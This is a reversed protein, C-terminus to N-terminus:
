KNIEAGCKSCYVANKDCYEGCVGCMVSNDMDAIKSKIQANEEYMLDVTKLKQSIDEPFESGNKYEDYVAKGIQALIDKIKTENSGITYNLKTKSILNNTKNVAKGAFKEAESFVKDAEKKIRGMFQEDM